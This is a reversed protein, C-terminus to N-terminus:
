RDNMEGEGNKPIFISPAVKTSQYINQIWLMLLEVDKGGWCSRNRRRLTGDARIMLRSVGMGSWDRSIGLLGWVVLRFM